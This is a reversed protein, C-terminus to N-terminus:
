YNRNCMEAIEEPTEQVKLPNCGNCYIISHSSHDTWWDVGEVLIIKETNVAAEYGDSQTVVIMM